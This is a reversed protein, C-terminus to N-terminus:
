VSGQDLLAGDPVPAALTRGKRALLEDAKRTAELPSDGGALSAEDDFPFVRQWIEVPMNVEWLAKTVEELWAEYTM